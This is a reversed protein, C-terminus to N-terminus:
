DLPISVQLTCGKGVASILNFIGSFIKIRRKINELGIGTTVSTPDFGVGDDTIEFLLAEKSVSLHITIKSANAYKVINNLQEQLIRYLNVKLKEPLVLKKVADSIELTVIFRNNVNITNILAEFIQEITLENALAPALQHSLKRIESIAEKVYQEGKTIEEATVKQAELKKIGYNIFLLSAALIQNVNDHLEMGMQNWEREQAEIVATEVKDTMEIEKTIDQMSGIMRVPSGDQNYIVFARDHIYRYTGDYCLFRYELQVAAEKKLFCKQLLQIIREKDNPHIHAEWWKETNRIENNHYGFTKLLGQNYIITDTKINWDWITDSTAKTLLDYRELAEARSMEAEKRLTIDSRVAIFQFPKGNHDLFPIITTDVWFFSGDKTKNKLEGRWVHGALVTQWLKRYHEKNHYGSKLISHGKGKIEESSYGSVRCFNENVYQIIGNEDSIDIISSQDLAYVYDKVKKEAAKRETENEISELAFSIDGAVEELLAIEEQNFYNKSSAYLAFVGYLRGSKKVPLAIKSYYGRAIAYEKRSAMLPDNEIDNSFVIRSERLAIEVPGTSEPIDDFSITRIESLFGAENGAFVAPLLQGSNKDTKGLWAMRFDGYKVAIRCAEKLLTEEDKTRIIMQNIQSIFGYLRNAKGLAKETEKQATIDMYTGLVGIIENQTNRLPVKSTIISHTKGDATILNEQIDFSPVGTEIIRRDDNQYLAAMASWGLMHDNKGVIEKPDSFGADKAFMENCGIYVLDKNKWFVRAPVAKIINETLLQSVSLAERVRKFETIDSTFGYWNINGKDDKVPVANSYLTRVTGDKLCIRFEKQWLSLNEGCQKLSATMEADDDPHRMALVRSADEYVEEPTLQYIERCADNVYTFTVKGDTSTTFQFIIGRVRAAIINLRDLTEKQKLEALKRDTIDQATGISFVPNGNEDYTTACQEHVYKIRKDPFQLRHVIDYKTKDAVSQTFAKNVYDRDDPHIVALFTEYTPHFHVPDLEFINYIENTWKLRNDSHDLEWSGIHAVSQALNLNRESKKTEEEAKKRDTIDFFSSLLHGEIFAGSIIVTREEGNKCTVCYEMPEIETENNLALQMADSWRKMVSERYVPDPYALQWWEQITPIEASSYGFLKEFAKNSAIIHGSTDLFSLPVTATHFLKEFKSESKDLADSRKDLTDLMTNFKHALIAAEDNGSLVVRAATNGTEIEKFTDQIVYLRRTISLTLLWALFTGLLVALLIYIIGKVLTDRLKTKVLTHDIGVRVWGVQKAALTVPMAVDLLAPSNTIITNGSKTPLDVLFQRKRSLDTHALIRGDNDTFIIFLLGPYKLQSEILEELGAIDNSAVWSEAATSLTHALVFTNEQQEQWLINKQRTLVDFVFFSMLFAHILAVSIILRVRLSQFKIKSM